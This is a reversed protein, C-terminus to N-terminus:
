PFNYLDNTNFADTCSGILNASENYIHKITTSNNKGSNLVSIDFTRPVTYRACHGKVIPMTLRCNGDTLPVISYIACFGESRASYEGKFHLISINM